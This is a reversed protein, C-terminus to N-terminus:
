DISRDISEVREANQTDRVIVDAAVILPVGVLVTGSSCLSSVVSGSCSLAEQHGATHVSMLEAGEM